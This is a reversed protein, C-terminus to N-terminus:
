EIKVVVGRENSNDSGILFTTNKPLIKFTVGKNKFSEM